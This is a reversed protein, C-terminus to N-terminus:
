YLDIIDILIVSVFLTFLLFISYVIIYVSVTIRVHLTKIISNYDIIIIVTIIARM